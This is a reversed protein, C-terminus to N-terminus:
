KALPPLLRRMVHRHLPRSIFANTGYTYKDSGSNTSEAADDFDYKTITLYSFIVPTQESM